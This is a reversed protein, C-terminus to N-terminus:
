KADGTAEIVLDVIKKMNENTVPLAYGQLVVKLEAVSQPLLDIIKNIQNDKLRPISLGDIKKFLEEAQKAKIMKFETLYEETKAARFSLEGDRKKIQSLEEKLESMSMSKKELIDISTM